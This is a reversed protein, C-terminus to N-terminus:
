RAKLACEIDEINNKHKNIWKYMESMDLSAFPERQFNHYHVYKRLEVFQYLAHTTCKGVLEELDREVSQTSHESSGASHHVLISHDVNQLITRVGSEANCIRRVASEHLNPGLNKIAQKLFNNSHEVDLDLAVNKGISGSSNVTRNWIFRQTEQLLYLM